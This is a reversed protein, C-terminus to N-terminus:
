RMRAAGWERVECSDDSLKGPVCPVISIGEVTYNWTIYSVLLLVEARVHLMLIFM